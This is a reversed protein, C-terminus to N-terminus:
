RRMSEAMLVCLQVQGTRKRWSAKFHKFSRQPTRKRRRGLKRVVGWVALLKRLFNGGLCWPPWAEHRRCSSHSWSPWAEDALPDADM